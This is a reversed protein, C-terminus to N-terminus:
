LGFMAKVKTQEAKDEDWFKHGIDARKSYLMKIQEDIAAQAEEKEKYRRDNEEKYKKYEVSNEMVETRRKRETEADILKLREDSVLWENHKKKHEQNAKRTANSKVLKHLRKIEDVVQGKYAYKRTSRIIGEQEYNALREYKHVSFWNDFEDPDQELMERCEPDRNIMQWCTLECVRCTTLLAKKTVSGYRLTGDLCGCIECDIMSPKHEASTKLNLWSAGKEQYTTMTAKSMKTKNRKATKTIPNYNKQIYFLLEIKKM